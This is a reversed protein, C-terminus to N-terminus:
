GILSETKEKQAKCKVRAYNDAISVTAELLESCMMRQEVFSGLCVWISVERGEKPCYVKPDEVM